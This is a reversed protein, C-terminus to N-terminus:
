KKKTTATRKAPKRRYPVAPEAAVSPQGTGASYSVSAKAEIRDIMAKTRKRFAALRKPGMRKEWALRRKRLAESIKKFEEETPTSGGGIFDVDLEQPRLKRTAM